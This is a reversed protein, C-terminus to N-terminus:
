VAVSTMKRRPWRGAEDAHCDAINQKDRGAPQAGCAFCPFLGPNVVAWHRCRSLVPVATPALICCSGVHLAYHTQRISHM